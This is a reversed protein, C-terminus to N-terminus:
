PAATYFRSPIAIFVAGGDVTVCKNVLPMGTKFYHGIAAITTCNCVICGVDIPLKGVPIVKGTTHYVLVKEGGQPYISPLIKVEIHPDQM